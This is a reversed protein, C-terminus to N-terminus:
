VMGKGRNCPSEPFFIFISKIFDATERSLLWFGSRLDFFGSFLSFEGECLRLFLDKGGRKCFSGQVTTEGTVRIEGGREDDRM